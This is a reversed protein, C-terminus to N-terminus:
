SESPFIGQLAIMFTVALYPPMNNHGQGGGANATAGMEVNSTDAYFDTNATAPYRGTPSTDDGEGSQAKPRHSHSPIQGINLVVQELGSKEGINRNSLGPGNGWHMPFRGRLDPLGFTTEGDGGYTTGLLSFLATNQNIPLIQGDCLAWGATAFNWGVIRIEGLFPQAM